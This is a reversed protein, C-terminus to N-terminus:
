RACGEASDPDCHGCHAMADDGKVDAEASALALLPNEQECESVYVTKGLERPSGESRAVVHRVGVMSKDNRFVTGLLRQMLAPLTNHLMLNLTSERERERGRERCWHIHTLVAFYEDDCEGENLRRERLRM